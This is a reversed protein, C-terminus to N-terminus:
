DLCGETAALESCFSLPFAPVVLLESNRIEQFSQPPQPVITEVLLLITEILRARLYFVVEWLPSMM